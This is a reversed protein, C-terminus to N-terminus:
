GPVSLTSNELRYEGCSNYMARLLVLIGLPPLSFCLVKQFWIDTDSHHKVENEEDLLRQEAASDNRTKAALRQQELRNFVENARPWNVFGDYGFWIGMGVLIVAMLYRTNRYYRGAHAIIPESASDTM